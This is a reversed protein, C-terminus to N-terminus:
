RIKEMLIADLAKGWDPREIGFTQTLSTCDLRSNFPRAAPTPYDATSIDTVAVKDGSRAFIGRAFDAWSVDPTGSIHYIGAKGPDSVLAKAIVICADAIADAPTPGGVQDAVISLADRDKALRLMTNVFNKGHESFVWSTRLVASAGSAALVVNEGDRKTTGYVSQPDTPDTPLWAPGETGSFVYDTSIHVFPLNRRAAAAAMAGPTQENIIRAQEQETEAADVATWAAANIVAQADTAAILAACADPDSLDAAARDLAEVTVGHQSAREIVARAVQGSKGFMLVKM